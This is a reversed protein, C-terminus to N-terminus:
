IPMMSSWGPLRGAVEDNGLTLGQFGEGPGSQEWLAGLHALVMGSDGLGANRLM